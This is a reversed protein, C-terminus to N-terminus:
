AAARARLEVVPSFKLWKGPGRKANCRFCVPAVDLPRAYDRHDYCQAPAGCDACQVTSVHPLLGVRVAANVANIAERQGSGGHRARRCPNCFHGTEGPRENCQLCVPVPKV